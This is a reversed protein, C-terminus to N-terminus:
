KASLPLEEIQTSLEWDESLALTKAHTRSNGKKVLRDFNTLQQPTLNEIRARILHVTESPRLEPYPYGKKTMCSEKYM